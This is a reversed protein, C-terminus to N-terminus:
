PELVQGDEDELRRPGDESDNQTDTNDSNSSSPAPSDSRRSSRNDPKQIPGEVIVTHARVQGCRKGFLPINRTGIGAFRTSVRPALLHTRRDDMEELVSYLAAGVEPSWGPRGGTLASLGPIISGGTSASAATDVGFFREVSIGLTYFHCEKAHRKQQIKYDADEFPINARPIGRSTGACGCACLAIVIM